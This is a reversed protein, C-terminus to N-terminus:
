NCGKSCFFLFKQLFTSAENLANSNTVDKRQQGQIHIVTIRKKNNRGKKKIEQPIEDIKPNRIGAAFKRDKIAEM